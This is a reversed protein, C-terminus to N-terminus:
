RAQVKGRRPGRCNRAELREALLNTDQEAWGPQPYSPAYHISAEGLVKLAEDTVVVKLSQTGIDIGILM